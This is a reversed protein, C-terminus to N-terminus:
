RTQQQQQQAHSDGQCLWDQAARCSHPLHKDHHHDHRCAADPDVHGRPADVKIKMPLKQRVSKPIKEGSIYSNIIRINKMYIKLIWFRFWTILVECPRSGDISECCQTKTKGEDHLLLLDRFLNGMFKRDEKLYYSKWLLTPSRRHKPKRAQHHNHPMKYISLFLIQSIISFSLVLSVTSLYKM